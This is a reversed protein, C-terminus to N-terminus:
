QELNEQALFKASIKSGENIPFPKGSLPKAYEEELSNTLVWNELDKRTITGKLYKETLLSAIRGGYRSGWYGNEIFVAIAIKPDDKPAFAIFTSHDTLQVRKDNIKTYNEATGTKGCLEIGPIKLFSATGFNYVDNM